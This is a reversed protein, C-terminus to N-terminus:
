FRMVCHARSWTNASCRSAPRLGIVSILTVVSLPLCMYKFILFNEFAGRGLPLSYVGFHVIRGYPSTGGLLPAKKLSYTDIYFTPIECNPVELLTPFTTM